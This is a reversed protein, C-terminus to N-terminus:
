RKVEAQYGEDEVAAVLARPDAEGEVLARERERSVEIVRTVGPVARLAKTVGMECHGCTMGTVRLEIM